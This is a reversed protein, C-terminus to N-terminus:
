YNPIPPRGMGSVREFECWFKFEIVIEDCEIVHLTFFGSNWLDLYGKPSINRGSKKKTFVNAQKMKAAGM